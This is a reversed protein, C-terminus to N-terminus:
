IVHLPDIGKSVGNATVQVVYDDPVLVDFQFAWDEGEPPPNVSAGQFTSGNNISQATASVPTGPPSVTGVVPFPNGVTDDSKPRDITLNVKRAVAM